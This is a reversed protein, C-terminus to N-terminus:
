KAKSALALLTAREATQSKVINQAIKKVRADDGYRLEIRAMDIGDKHHEAMMRAFMRDTDKEMPMNKMMQSCSKMMQDHLAGAGTEMMQSHPGKGMSQHDHAKGQGFAAGTLTVGALFAVAAIASTKINPNM